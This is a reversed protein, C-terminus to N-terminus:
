KYPFYTGYKAEFEQLKIIKNDSFEMVSCGDFINAEGKYVYDFTWVLIVKNQSVIAENIKWENIFNDDSQNWHTFWKQCEEKGRYAAGYCEKIWVKDALSDLFDGVNKNKWAQIYKKALELM